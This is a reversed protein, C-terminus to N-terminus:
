GTAQAGTRAAGELLVSPAASDEILEGLRDRECVVVGRNRLPVELREHQENM